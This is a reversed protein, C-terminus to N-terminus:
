DIINSTGNTNCSTSVTAINCIMCRKGRYDAAYCASCYSCKVLPTGKYLPKLTNCDLSYLM